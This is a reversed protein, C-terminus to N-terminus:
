YLIFKSKKLEKRIEKYDPTTRRVLNWFSQSHNFEGLHCIEHVIIYDALKEPLLAIKYNFNLNGKRSRSGWRTKQNKIYIKNFNFGYIKNFHQVRSNALAMAKDKYLKYEAKCCKTRIVPPSNKFYNIKETVWKSKKIIFDEAEKINGRKPITVVFDGDRYISLRIKKAKISTRLTYFISINDIIIEKKM